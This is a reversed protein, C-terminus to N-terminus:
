NIIIRDIYRLQRSAPVLASRTAIDNHLMIASQNASLEYSSFYLNSGESLRNGHMFM